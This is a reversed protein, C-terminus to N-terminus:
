SMRGPPTNSDIVLDSSVGIHCFYTLVKDPAEATSECLRAAQMCRAFDQERTVDRRREEFRERSGSPEETTKQGRCIGCAFAM